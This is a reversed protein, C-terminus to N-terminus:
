RGPKRLHPTNGSAATMPQNETGASPRPSVPDDGPQRRDVLLSAYGWVIPLGVLVLYALFRDPLLGLAHNAGLLGALGCVLGLALPTSLRQADLRSVVRELFQHWRLKFHHWEETKGPIPLLEFLFAAHVGIFAGAMGDVLAFLYNVQDARGDIILAFDAGRFQLIGLGVVTLLFWGYVLVRLGFPPAPLFFTLLIVLLGTLLGLYVWLSHGLGAGALVAMFVVTWTLISGESLRPLLKNQFGLAIGFTFVGCAILGEIPNFPHGQTQTYVFLAVGLLGAVVLGPRDGRELPLILYALQLLMGGVLCLWVVQPNGSM